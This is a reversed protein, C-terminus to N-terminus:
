YEGTKGKSAVIKNLQLQLTPYDESYSQPKVDTVLIKNLDMIEEFRKFFVSSRFSKPIIVEKPACQVLIAEFTSLYQDDEFQIVNIIRELTNIYAVGIIPVDNGFIKVSILGSSNDNVSYLTDELSGLNGPSAKVDLSWSASRSSKEQKYIEVRYHRILLLEKLIMELKNMSLAISPISDIYKIVTQTKLIDNAIFLADPGHITFFDKRDFLRVTTPSKESLKRYFVLFDTEHPVDTFIFYFCHFYLRFFLFDCSLYFQKM